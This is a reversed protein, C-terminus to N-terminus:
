GEREAALCDAHRLLHGKDDEFLPALFGRWGPKSFIGCAWITGFRQTMIMPCPKKGAYCTKKGCRIEISLRRKM